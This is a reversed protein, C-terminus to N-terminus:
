RLGMAVQVEQLTQEARKIARTAGNALVDKIVSPRSELDRRHQQIPAIKEVIADAVWSKCEICGISATRCGDAAKQQTEDSSFVKHLDFVPCVDPNGPDDRRVRAPDTVMTKLKQRLEPEPESLSIFNGYSKSMKRGDLGPLKPSPTLLVQPEPLIERVGFPSLKKTQQAAEYMQHANFETRTSDKPEGANKRAKELIAAMEWPAAEPSTFFEGPYLSNFRRAVERTLEVHAVKDAGVPVFDPKYLLIDASQLLPYGLFGYTALDKERLQEQQDKYSPVRELWGLPTFMGFLLSLQAHQMVDSQRFIVCRGPDLGASLFDLTIQFSNEQVRSPDAYDTTLAHLDAIFFYCDYDQQLHVWNHLAGMYNGLHLRGTPRMGSLVRPRPTSRSTTLSM